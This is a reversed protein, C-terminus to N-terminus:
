WGDKIIKASCYQGNGTSCNNDLQTETMEYGTPMVGNGPVRVLQFFDKGYVNPPKPGNLDIYINYSPNTESGSATEFIYMTGDATILAARLSPYVVRITSATGNLFTYPYENDFGCTAATDCTNIVKLYPKWYKDVYQLPVGTGGQVPEWDEMPGNDIESLKMAQSIVSYAKKFQIAIRKKEYNAILAPMVLAAVVGIIGLTILVEALTFANKKM